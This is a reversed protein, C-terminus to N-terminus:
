NGNKKVLRKVEGALYLSGFFVFACNESEPPPTEFIEEVIEALSDGYKADACYRGAIEALKQPSEARPSDVPAGIFKKVFGEGAIHRLVYDPNKDKMMGCVLVIKKDPLLTKIAECLAEAGSINHAGDLVVLPSKSLTEFRAPFYTKKLGSCVAEYLGPTPTNKFICHLTEIATLANYVQHRGALRIEYVKGKYEFETGDTKEKTITLSKTDPVVFESNKELAAAKAVETASESNLPYFVVPSGSKIIGCKEAAIKEITDGLQQMHDLGISTIVSALPSKISNTPDIRGGLGTEIVAIDCNKERYYLFATLTVFDFENPMFKAPVNAEEITSKVKKACHVLEGESIDADGISIRETFNEIYPSIFRGTRYGLESLITATMAATSGKGNTGAIHITKCSDQPNGFLACLYHIKVLDTHPPNSYKGLSHIYELTETYSQM